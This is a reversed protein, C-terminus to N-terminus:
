HVPVSNVTNGGMKVDFLRRRLVSGHGYHYRSEWTDGAKVTLLRESNM